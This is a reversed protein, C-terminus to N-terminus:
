FKLSAFAVLNCVQYEDDYGDEDAEGTAPDCDKVIFKM